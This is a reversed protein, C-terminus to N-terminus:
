AEQDGNACAGRGAADLRQAVELVDALERGHHVRVGLVDVRQVPRGRNRVVHPHIELKAAAGDVLM